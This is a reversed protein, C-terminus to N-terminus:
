WRRGTPRTACTSRRRTVPRRRLIARDVHESFGVADRRRVLAVACGGFGAGTMRAGICGAARAVSRGDRRAGSSVEFDDRLSVHSENMLRGLTPPTARPWPTPPRGGHARERTISTGRAAARSRPRAARERAHVARGLRRAAGQRRVGPPRRASPAASTTPRISWGAAPATDLVVVAAGAPLPVAAHGALPLRDAPRPGRPGAASILQDMIGCNVGVWQNEARQGLKAM